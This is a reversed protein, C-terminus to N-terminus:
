KTPPYRPTFRVGDPLLEYRGLIPPFADSGPRDADDVFVPFAKQWQAISPDAHWLQRIVDADLDRLDVSGYVPDTSDAHFRLILARADEAADVRDDLCVQGLAVGLWILAATALRKM